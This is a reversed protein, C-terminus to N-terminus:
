KVWLLNCLVSYACTEQWDKTSLTDLVPETVIETLM